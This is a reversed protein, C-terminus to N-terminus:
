KVMSMKRVATYSGATLRYFYVGSSLDRGDFTFSYKGAPYRGDALVAVERGLVDYVVLKVRSDVTWQGSIVTNPNFPNPYNQYLSPGLPLDSHDSGVGIILSGESEYKDFVLTLENASNYTANQLDNWILAGLPRGDIASVFMNQRFSETLDTFKTIGAGDTTDKDTKVGNVIGPLTTPDYDGYIYKSSTIAPVNPFRPDGWQKQNWVAMSDVVSADAIAPTETEPDSVTTRKEVFGGNPLGYSSFLSQTRENMWMGPTNQIRWPGGGYGAWSLYSPITGLSPLVYKSSHYYGNILLTDYYNVNDSVFVSLNKLDLASTYHNSDSSYYKPQVLVMESMSVSDVNITSTPMHYLNGSGYIINTDEGVWNQNLFINNVVFLRHFFTAWLWNKKNNVFTNHNFYAFDTLENQQLFSIGGTTVTCNEVWLTDIPHKCQFVRSGWWQGPSFMNRFYSSTIRFKAGSPWGGVAGSENTCDFLDINCFEFLCNDIELSQAAGSATGCLFLENTIAGNLQMAQYHIGACKISGYVTNVANGYENSVISSKPVPEILIVPKQTGTSSPTGCIILTGTPDYVKIPARQFYYQGQFLAYVRNPNLRAGAANTDGNITSELLGAHARGHFTDGAIYITDQIAPVQAFMRCLPFLILFGLPFCMQKANM